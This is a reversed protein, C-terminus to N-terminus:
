DPGGGSLFRSTPAASAADDPGPRRIQSAPKATGSM